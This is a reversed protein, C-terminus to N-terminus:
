KRIIAGLEDEFVQILLNITEDITKDTLTKEKGQLIFSLAYAKKNEGLNDDQYVDFVQLRKLIKSQQKDAIKKIENFTINKDLVLSLDRKVEPFKSVEKYKYKGQVHKVLLNFDIIAYFVEQKIRNINLIKDSLKGIKALPGKETKIHLGFVFTDDSFEEQILKQIDFYQLIQTLSSSLDFYSVPKSNQYWSGATNAGTIMMGLMEKEKYTGNIFQYTKGFEIVKINKQKHNINYALVDLMTFALDQRLVALDESLKNLIKVNLNDDFNNLQTAYIPKCLSNTIIEFYGNSVLLEILKNQVKNRNLPSLKSLPSTSLPKSIEVNNYGCIRLVDEIIDAERTVDVRYPPVIATFGEQTVNHTKIDLKNLISIILKQELEKGILKTIRDFRIKIQVDQIPKPYIDIIPGAMDGGAIETILLAARKLAYIVINPDAGREFRFSAETKIQHHQATKRIFHPSFYASELFINTTSNRVGSNLGGMIGAICLGDKKDCIMLDANTLKREKKDLTKFTPESHLTKITLENGSIQAADFVHLPQGTEYLVFNTIDVINNIPNIDVSLLRNKLWKPSEAVKVGQISIGSYRPCGEHNSVKVGIPAIGKGEKFLAVSPLKTDKNIVARLDRAVGYYSAADPRNPTLGIELVYEDKVNFYDKAPTGNPVDTKLVMIEDHNKGLGLEDEACIMGLSEVGRIKVKKIKFPTEKESPHLICGVTAVAIKQGVAVNAAGCVIQVPADLGLHVTTVKLKDANPHKKCTLVEGIVVGKLSGKISEFKKVGEVELGIDTLIEALNEPSEEFYIYEKLWDLSIKM